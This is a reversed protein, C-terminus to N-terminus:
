APPLDSWNVTGEPQLVVSQSTQAQAGVPVFLLLLSALVFVTAIAGALGRIRVSHKM